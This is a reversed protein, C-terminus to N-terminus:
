HGRTAELACEARVHQTCWDAFVLPDVKSAEISTECHTCRVTLVEGSGRRPTPTWSRGPKSAFARLCREDCLWLFSGIVIPQEVTSLVRPEHNHVTGLWRQCHACHMRPPDTSTSLSDWFRRSRLDESWGDEADLTIGDRERLDDVCLYIACKPRAHIWLWDLVSSADVQFGSWKWPKM